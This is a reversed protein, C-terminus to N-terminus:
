CSYFISNGNIKSTFMGGNVGKYKIFEYDCNDILEEKQEYSPVHSGDEFTFNDWNVKEQENYNGFEIFILSFPKLTFRSKPSSSCGTCRRCVGETQM